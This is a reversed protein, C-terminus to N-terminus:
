EMPAIPTPQDDILVPLGRKHRRHNICFLLLSRREVSGKPIKSHFLINALVQLNKFFDDNKLTLDVFFDLLFDMVKLHPQPFASITILREHDSKLESLNIDSPFMPEEFSDILMLLSSYIMSIWKKDKKAILEKPKGNDLCDRIQHFYSESFTEDFTIEQMSLSRLAWCLWFIQIPVRPDGVELPDTSKPPIVLLDDEDKPLRHGNSMLHIFSCGFCSKQYRAECVVFYDRGQDLSIILICTLAFESKGPISIKRAEEDSVLVQLNIEVDAGAEIYSSKPTITLWNKPLSEDQHTPAFSFRTGSKGTNKITLTRVIASRYYVNGFNFETASLEIQPLMENAKKDGERLVEEYVKAKKQENVIKSGLVFSARVPKHDSFVVKEVSSYENQSIKIKKDKTWYLIRDCWAPIRRKESTDWRSTNVDFKYTPRFPLGLLEKFGHFAQRQQQQKRLQDFELLTNANGSEIIDVVADYGYPSDLRYNLDGLWFVIDHDYLGRENNFKMQSIERFDQNRKSLEGGAALHSNIFCVPTNNIDFSIGVGGKNGFKLFGTAVWSTHVPSPLPLRSEYNRYIVMFIGILRVKEIIQYMKPLCKKLARLWQEERITSETVYTGLALDMEQLGIVVFDPMRETDFNLWDSTYDPPSKGNVNFTSIFISANEFTCFREQYDQLMDDVAPDNLTTWPRQATSSSIPKTSASYFTM